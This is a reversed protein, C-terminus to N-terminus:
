KGYRRQKVSHRIVGSREREDQSIRTLDRLERDVESEISNIGQRRGLGHGHVGAGTEIGDGGCGLKFGAALLEGEAIDGVLM